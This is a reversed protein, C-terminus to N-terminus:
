SCVNGENSKCYWELVYTQKVVNMSTCSMAHCVDGPEKFIRDFRRANYLFKHQKKNFM